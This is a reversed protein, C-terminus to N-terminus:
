PLPDGMGGAAAGAFQCTYTSSLLGTPTCTVTQGALYESIAQQVQADTPGPGMAGALGPAGAPGSVGVPGQPGECGAHLDCYAEVASLIQSDTADQGAAGTAGPPGPQGQPGACGHHASCYGSVAAAVQGATADRGPRGLRGSPGVPGLEGRAGPAGKLVRVVREIRASNKHALTAIQREDAHERRTLRANQREATRIQQVAPRIGRLATTSTGNAIVGVILATIAVIATVLNSLLLLRARPPQHIPPASM